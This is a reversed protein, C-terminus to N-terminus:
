LITYQTNNNRLHVHLVTRGHHLETLTLPKPSGSFIVFYYSLVVMIEHVETDTHIMIHNTNNDNYM